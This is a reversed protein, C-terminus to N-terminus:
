IRVIRGEKIIKGSDVYEKIIQEGRRQGVGIKKMIEDNLKVSGIQNGYNKVIDLVFDYDNSSSIYSHTLESILSLDFGFLSKIATSYAFIKERIRCSFDKEKSSKIVTLVMEIIENEENRTLRIPKNGLIENIESLDIKKGNHITKIKEMVQEKTLRVNNIFLRDKLPELRPNFYNTNIIMNGSFCKSERSNDKNWEIIRNEGLASLFISQFDFSTTLKNTDDFIFFADSFDRLQNFLEKPTINGTKLIFPQELVRLLDINSYSKGQGCAGLNMVDIHRLKHKWSYYSVLTSVTSPLCYKNFEDLKKIIM